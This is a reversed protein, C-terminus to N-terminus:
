FYSLFEKCSPPSDSSCTAQQSCTQASRRWLDREWRHKEPVLSPHLNSPMGFIGRTMSGFPITREKRGGEMLEKRYAINQDSAPRHHGVRSVGSVLWFGIQGFGMKEVLSTGLNVQGTCSCTCLTVPGSPPSVLLFRNSRKAVDAQTLQPPAAKSTNFFRFSEASWIQPIYAELDTFSM